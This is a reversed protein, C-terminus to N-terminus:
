AYHTALVNNTAQKRLVMRGFAVNKALFGPLLIGTGALTIDSNAYFDTHKSVTFTLRKRYRCLFLRANQARSAPTM